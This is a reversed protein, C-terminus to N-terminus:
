TLSLGDSSSIKWIKQPPPNDGLGEAANGADGAAGGPNEGEGGGEEMEEEDEGGLGEEGGEGGLSDGDDTLDVEDEQDTTNVVAWNVDAGKWSTKAWHHFPTEVDRLVKFTVKKFDPLNFIFRALQQNKEDTLHLGDVLFSEDFDSFILQYPIFEVEYCQLKPHIALFINLANYYELVSKFPIDKPFAHSKESCCKVLLRPMPGILKISGKFSKRIQISARIIGEIVVDIVEDSLIDPLEYHWVGQPTM